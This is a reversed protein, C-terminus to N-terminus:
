DLTLDGTEQIEQIYEPLRHSPLYNQGLRYGNIYAVPLSRRKQVNLDKGQQIDKELQVMIRSMEDSMLVRLRALSVGTKELMFLYDETQLNKTSKLIRWVYQPYVGARRAVQDFIGGEVQSENRPFYKFVVEIEGLYGRVSDLMHSVEQRCTICAMDTFITLRIPADKVGLIPNHLFKPVSDHRLEYPPPAYGPYKMHLDNFVNGSSPKKPITKEVVPEEVKKEIQPRPSFYFIRFIELVLALVLLLGALLFVSGSEKGLGLRALINLGSQQNKKAM